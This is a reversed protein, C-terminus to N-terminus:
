KRRNKFPGFSWQYSDQLCAGGRLFCTTRGVTQCPLTLFFDSAWPGKPGLFTMNTLSKMSSLGWFQVFLYWFIIPRPYMDKKKSYQNSSTSKRNPNQGNEPTKAILKLSPKEIKRYFNWPRKSGGISRPWLLTIVTNRRSANTSM